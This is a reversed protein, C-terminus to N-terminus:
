DWLRKMSFKKLDKTLHKKIYRIGLCWLLAMLGVCGTFVLIALAANDQESSYFAFFDYAGHALLPILISLCLYRKRNNWSFKALAFFYGMIVGNLGHGPVALIGRWFATVFGYDLVYSINEILAFGLSIFVAYVIGDYYQDFEKRGWVIRYFCLFKMGEEVFAAVVFAKYLSHALASDFNDFSSFFLEIYISPVTIICGWLFCHTLFKLPEKETDKKYVFYLFVVAPFVASVLLAM